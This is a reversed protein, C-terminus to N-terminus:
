DSFNCTVAIAFLSSHSTSIKFTNIKKGDILVFPKEYEDWFIEIQKMIISKIHSKIISEKVAFLEAFYPYPDSNNKCHEIELKSFISEYFSTNQEIPKNRFRIIEIIDTGIGINHFM